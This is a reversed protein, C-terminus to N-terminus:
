PTVEYAHLARRLEPHDGFDRINLRVDEATMWLWAGDADVEVRAAPKGRCHRTMNFDVLRFHQRGEPVEAQKHETPAM